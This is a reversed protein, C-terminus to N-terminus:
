GFISAQNFQCDKTFDLSIGHGWFTDGDDYFLSFSLDELFNVGTPTLRSVFEAKSIPSEEWDDEEDLWGPYLKGLEQEALAKNQKLWDLRKEAQLVFEELTQYATEGPTYVISISVQKGFLETEREYDKTSENFRYDKLSM